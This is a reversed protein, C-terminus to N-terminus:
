PKLRKQEEQTVTIFLDLRPEKPILFDGSQFFIHLASSLGDKMVAHGNELYLLHLRELEAINKHLFSFASFIRECREDFPLLEHKPQSGLAFRVTEINLEGGPKITKATALFDADFRDSYEQPSM